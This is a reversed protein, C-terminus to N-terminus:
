WLREAPQIISSQSLLSFKFWNVETEGITEKTSNSDYMKNESM